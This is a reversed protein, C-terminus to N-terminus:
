AITVNDGVRILGCKSAILNIGFNAQGDQLRVQALTRLPEDGRREGTVQDTTTVICRGCPKVNRLTVDGIVLTSWNDEAFLESEAIVINPRFRNMPVSHELRRNLHDLSAETTLLIPFGDAFSVEDTPEAFDQSPRRLSEPTMFVLRAPEGLFESIWSAAIDGADAAEVTSRWIVVERCSEALTPEPVELRGLGEARLILGGDIAQPVLRALKGKERQTIFRDNADVIMWRRDHKLGRPEVIAESVANGRASKVPYLHLASIHM